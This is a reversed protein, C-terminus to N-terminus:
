KNLLSRHEIELLRLKRWLGGGYGGPSGDADIVRHCPILIAIRNMGNARGVARAAGPKGIMGALEGYSRTRGFPIDLLARWVTRQFDTGPYELPIDFSTRKGAFYEDLERRLADFLPSEAPFLPLRFHASITKFLAEVTRQDSFDLLCLANGAAGAVMDGLPTAIRALRICETAEAGGPVMEATETFAAIM